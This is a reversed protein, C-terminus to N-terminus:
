KVAYVVRVRVTKVLEGDVLEDDGDTGGPSYYRASGYRLENGGEEASVVAGLKVGLGAAIAEARTTAKKTAKTLAATLLDDMGDQKLYAVRVMDTTYRTSLMGEPMAGTLGEKIAERQVKEVAEV